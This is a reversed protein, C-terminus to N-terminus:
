GEREMEALERRLQVTAGRVLLEQDLGLSKVATSVSAALGKIHAGMLAILMDAPSIKPDAMLEQLTSATAAAIAPGFRRVAGDVLEDDLPFPSQPM